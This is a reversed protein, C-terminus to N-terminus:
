KVSETMIIVQTRNEIRIGRLKYQRENKMRKKKRDRKFTKENKVITTGHSLLRPHTERPSEPRFM